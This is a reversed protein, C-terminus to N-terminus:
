KFKVALTKAPNAYYPTSSWYLAVTDSFDSFDVWYNEFRFIRVKPISTGINVVFPVHDSVPRGLVKVTTDPYSAAWSSSTFVWDLKELLPDSQMNSWSYHRGEFEIEALDLHQILDNFALMDQVNAGPRNRDNPSRILNFDGALLWDGFSTIDLNYLWLLFSAKDVSNAPGYIDTLHFARGSLNCVLKVIIAFSNMSVLTRSFYNSNWIIILDGSAGMSLSFQFASLQWPCFKKIYQLDFHERKTEQLCVISSSSESIKDRIADWKSQSNIGRVNWVLIHISRTNNM